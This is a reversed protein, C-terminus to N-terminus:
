EAPGIKRIDDISFTLLRKMNKDCFKRFPGRIFFPVRPFLADVAKSVDEKKDSIGTLTGYLQYGLTSNGVGKFFSFWSRIDLMSHQFSVSFAAKPNERLNKITKPLSVQLVHVTNDDAIRMSGIPAVNPNGDRDATAISVYQDKLLNIHNFANKASEINEMKTNM